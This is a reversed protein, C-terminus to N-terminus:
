QGNGCRPIEGDNDMANLNMQFYLAPDITNKIDLENLFGGLGDDKVISFHLHIGTPNEADGSYDGQYGLLTGATILVEHTDPPFESSIFSNGQPDAMHTYYIWIQRDPQLPDSPIRIIVSSKWDALRTLYGDYASVVRTMGISQGGFIDIGQHHHGPRFSDGWLYGIYGDTPMMFPADGCRVGGLVSWGPHEQPSLLYELLMSHRSSKITNFLSSKWYILVGVIILIVIIVPFIPWIRKLIVQTNNL